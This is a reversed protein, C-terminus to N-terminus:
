RMRVAVSRVTYKKGDNDKVIIKYIYSGNAIPDGDADIGDWGVSHYGADTPGDFEKVLRGRLTFVKIKVSKVPHTLTYVFETYNKFPNPYNVVDRIPDGKGTIIEVTAVNDTEKIEGFQSDPDAVVFLKEYYDAVTHAFQVLYISDPSPTMRPIIVDEAVANGKEDILRVPINEFKTNGEFHVTASITIEDGIDPTPDSLAVDDDSIFLNAGYYLTEPDVETFKRRSPDDVAVRAMGEGDALGWFDATFAYCLELVSDTGTTPVALWLPIIRQEGPFIDPVDIEVVRSDVDYSFTYSSDIGDFYADKGIQVYFKPTVAVDNGVNAAVLNIIMENDGQNLVYYGDEGVTDGNVVSVVKKPMVAPGRSSITQEKGTVTREIGLIDRYELVPYESILLDDSGYPADIVARVMLWVSKHSPSPPFESFEAPPFLRLVGDAFDGSLSSYIGSDIYAPDPQSWSWVAEVPTPAQVYDQLSDVFQELEAQGILFAPESTGSWNVVALKATISDAFPMGSGVPAEYERETGSVFVPVDYVGVPLNEDLVIHFVFYVRRSSQVEPITVSGDPNGFQFLVERESPNFRWGAHFTRPDDGPIWEDTSEDYHAPVFPRPYVGYWFVEYSGGLDSLDVRCNLDDWVQGSANDVEVIITTVPGVFNQAYGVNTWITDDFSAINNVSRSDNHVDVRARMTIDPDFLSAPEKGGVRVTINMAGDSKSVVYPDFYEDFYHPENTETIKYRLFITDPYLSVVTPTVNRNWISINNGRAEALLAHTWQVWPSGGFIEENVLTAGENIPVLGEYGHGHWIVRLTLHTAGLKEPLDDGYASDPGPCWGSHAHALDGEIAVTTDWPHIAFTDQAEEGTLPPFRDHLFGTPNVFRDGFDDDWDDVGDFNDDDLAPPILIQPCYLEWKFPYEVVFVETPVLPNTDVLTVYEPFLNDTDIEFEYDGIGKPITVVVYGFVGDGLSDPETSIREWGRGDPSTYDYTFQGLDHGVNAIWYKSYETSATIKFDIYADGQSPLFPLEEGSAPDVIKYVQNVYEFQLPNPLPTYYTYSVRIPTTKHRGWITEYSIKAYITDADPPFPSTMTPEHGGLNLVAIYERRPYPIVGLDTEVPDDPAPHYSTDPEFRFGEYSGWNMGILRVYVVNGASDHEMWWEWHEYYFGTDAPDRDGRDLGLHEAAGKAMDMLSPPDIWLEWSVYPDYW